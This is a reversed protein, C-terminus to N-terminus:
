KMDVNQKNDAMRYSAASKCSRMEVTEMIEMQDKRRVRYESGHLGMPM